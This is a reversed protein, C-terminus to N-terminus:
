LVIMSIHETCKEKNGNYRKKTKTAAGHSRWIQFLLRIKCPKASKQHVFSSLSQSIREIGNM